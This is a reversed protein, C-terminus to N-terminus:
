QLSELIEIDTHPPPTSRQYRETLPTHPIVWRVLHSPGKSFLQRLSSSRRLPGRSPDSTSPGEVRRTRSGSLSLLGVTDAFSICGTVPSYVLRFGPRGGTFRTLTRGGPRRFPGTSYYPPPVSVFEESSLSQLSTLIERRGSVETTVYPVPVEVPCTRHGVRNLFGSTCLDVCGTATLTPTTGSRPSM